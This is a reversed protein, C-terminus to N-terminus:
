MWWVYWFVLFIAFFLGVWAKWGVGSKEAMRMMRGFTGRLKVQAREFSEEMNQLLKNDARVKDGIEVTVEKLMKIKASLGEVQEDNQSELQSLVADSYQGRSNPTAERYPTVSPSPGRASSTSNAPSARYNPTTAFLQTRTDRQHAQQGYRSAM